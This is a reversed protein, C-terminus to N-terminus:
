LVLLYGFFKKVKLTASTVVFRLNPRWKVLGKLLDFLVNTHITREHVEDLMILFYSVLEEYSIECWQNVKLEKSVENM